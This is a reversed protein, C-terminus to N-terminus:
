VHNKFQYSITQGVLGIFLILRSLRNRCNGSLNSKKTKLVVSIAPNKKEEEKIFNLYRGPNGLRFDACIMRCWLDYFEAGPVPKIGGIATIADKRVLATNFPVRHSRRAFTKAESPHQPFSMQSIPQLCKDLLVVNTFCLSLEESILYAIQKEFRDETCVSGCDAFGILDQDCVSIAKNLGDALGGTYPMYVVDLLPRSEILSCLSRNLAGIDLVLVQSPPAPVQKELSHLTRDMDDASVAKDVPLIVAYRM